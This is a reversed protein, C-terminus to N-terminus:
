PSVRWRLVKCLQLCGGQAGSQKGPLQWLVLLLELMLSDLSHWSPQHLLIFPVAIAGGGIAVCSDKRGYEHRRHYPFFYLCSLLLGFWICIHHASLGPYVYDTCMKSAFVLLQEM